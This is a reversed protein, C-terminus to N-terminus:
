YRIIKKVVLDPNKFDIFHIGQVYTDVSIVLKKSKDFFVDDNLKLSGKNNNSLKSFYKSILEFEHM